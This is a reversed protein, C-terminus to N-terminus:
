FASSLVGAGPGTAPGYRVTAAYKAPTTSNSTAWSVGMESGDVAQTLSLRIQNQVCPDTPPVQANASQAFAVALLSLRHM